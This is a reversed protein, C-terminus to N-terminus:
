HFVFMRACIFNLKQKISNISYMMILMKVMMDHMKGAKVLVLCVCYLRKSLSM